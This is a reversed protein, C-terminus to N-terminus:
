RTTTNETVVASTQAPVTSVSADAAPLLAIFIRLSSIMVMSYFTASRKKTREGKVWFLSTQPRFFGIFLLIVSAVFILAFLFAFM